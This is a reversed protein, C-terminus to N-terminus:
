KKNLWNKNLCFEHYEHPSMNTDEKFKKSFYFPDDFGILSSIEKNSYNTKELYECAKQMRFKHVFKVFPIGTEQKFLRSLYNANLGLKDALMIISLDSNSYNKSIFSIAESIYSERISGSETQKSQREDILIAFIEYLSSIALLDRTSQNSANLIKKFAEHLSTSKFAYVPNEPSFKANELFDKAKVGLFNIWRYEWPDDPNPGYKIKAGPFFAFIQNKEIEYRKDGIEYFGSGNAVCHLAFYNYSCDLPQKNKDCKERGCEIMFLDGTQSVNGYYFFFDPQRQKKQKSENTKISKKM